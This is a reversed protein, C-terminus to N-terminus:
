KNPKPLLHKLGFRYAWSTTHKQLKSYYTRSTSHNEEEIDIPVINCVPYTFILTQHAIVPSFTKLASLEYAKQYLKGFKAVVDGQTIYAAINPRKDEPIAEWESVVPADIGPANFTYSPVEKSISDHEYIATYNALAGGLSHGMVIANKKAPGHLWKKIEERGANFMKHGPGEPDLDSLMTARGARTAINFETGRYLLLPLGRDNEPLLAFALVQKWLNFVSDVRYKVIGKKGDKLIPISITDGEELNRYAIVKCLVEATMKEYLDNNTIKEDITELLSSAVDIDEKEKSVRCILSRKLSYIGFRDSFYKLEKIPNTLTKPTIPEKEYCRSPYNFIMTMLKEWYQVGRMYLFVRPNKSRRKKYISDLIESLKKM